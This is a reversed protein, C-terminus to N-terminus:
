LDSSTERNSSLPTFNQPRRRAQVNEIKARRLESSQSGHCGPSSQTRKVTFDPFTNVVQVTFDPFSSVVKWRGPKDPFTDVFTVDADAFNRVYKIKYDAFHEVFQVRGHLECARADSQRTAADHHLDLLSMSLLAVTLM